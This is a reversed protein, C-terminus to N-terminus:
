YTIEKIWDYREDFPAFDKEECTTKLERDLQERRYDSEVDTNLADIFDDYMESIGKRVNNIRDKGFSDNGMYKPSHLVIGVIDFMFQRMTDREAERNVRILEKVKDPYDQGKKPNFSKRKSM